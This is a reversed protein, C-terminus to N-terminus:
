KDDSKRDTLNVTINDAARKSTAVLSEACVKLIEQCQKESLVLEITGLEDSFQIKGTVAKNGTWNRSINLRQLNM